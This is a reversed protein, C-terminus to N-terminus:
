IAAYFRTEIRFVNSGNNAGLESNSGACWKMAPNWAEVVLPRAATQLGAWSHDEVPASVRAACHLHQWSTGPLASVREQSRLSPLGYVRRQPCYCEEVHLAAAHLLRRITSDLSFSLGQRQDQMWSGAANRGAVSRAVTRATPYHKLDLSVIPGAFLAPRRIHGYEQGTEAVNLQHVNRADNVAHISHSLGFHM